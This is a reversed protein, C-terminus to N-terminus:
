RAKPRPHAIRWSPGTGRDMRIAFAAVVRGKWVDATDPEFTVAVPQGSQFKQVDLVRLTERGLVWTAAGTWPSSYVPTGNLDFDYGPGRGEVQEIRLDPPRKKGDFDYHWGALWAPEARGGRVIIPDEGADRVAAVAEKLARWYSAASRPARRVPAAGKILERFAAAAAFERLTGEWWELENSVPEEMPPQTYRAKQTLFRYRYSSLDDHVFRVEGILPVPFAGEAKSFATRGAAEAIAALRAPDIVARTIESLRVAEIEAQCAELTRVVEGMLLTAQAPTCADARLTAVVEAVRKAPLDEAAKRMAALHELLRRRTRDDRPLLLRKLDEGIEVGAGRRRGSPSPMAAALLLTQLGAQGEVDAEGSWSYIRASIYNPGELRDIEEALAGIEQGYGEEFREGAGVVRLVAHLITGPSLAPERPHYSASPDFSQNRFLAGAAEAPGDEIRGTAGAEGMLGILSCALVVQSDLWANEVVAEFVEARKAPEDLRALGVAAVEEWPKRLLGATVIPRVLAYGHGTNWGLLIKRRWKLMMDVSWGIAQREGAKAAQAIRLASDHLHRSISPWAAQLTEWSAESEPSITDALSEWGGVFRLWV